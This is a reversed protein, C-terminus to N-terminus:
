NSLLAAGIVQAKSGLSSRKLPCNKIKENMEKIEERSILHLISGFMLLMDPNLKNAINIYAETINNLWEKYKRLAVENKNKLLEKVEYGNLTTERGLEKSIELFLKSMSTYIEICDTEGCSCVIDEERGPMKEHGYEFSEESLIGNEMVASGTGTGFGLAVIKGREGKAVGRKYEGYLAGKLDKEIKIKASIKYGRNEAEKIFDKSIDYNDLGINFMRVIINDIVEGPAVMGVSKIQQVEANAKEMYKELQNLMTNIIKNRKEEDSDGTKDILHVDEEWIIESGLESKLLEGDEYEAYPQIKTGGLDFGFKISKSKKM